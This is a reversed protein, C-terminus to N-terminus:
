PARGFIQEVIVQASAQYGRNNRDKVFGELYFTDTKRLRKSNELLDEVHSVFLQKLDCNYCNKKYIEFETKTM